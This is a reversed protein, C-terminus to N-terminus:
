NKFKLIVRSNALNSMTAELNTDFSKLKKSSLFIMLLFNQGRESM